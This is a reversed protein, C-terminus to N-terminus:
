SPLIRRRWIATDSAAPEGGLWREVVGALLTLYIVLWLGLHASAAAYRTLNSTAWELVYVLVMLILAAATVFPWWRGSRLALGTFILTMVGASAAALANAGPHAGTLSTLAYDSILVAAGLREPHGGRMWGTM